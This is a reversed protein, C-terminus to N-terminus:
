KGRQFLLENKLVFEKLTIYDSDMPRGRGGRKQYAEHDIIPEGDYSGCFKEYLKIYAEKNDM